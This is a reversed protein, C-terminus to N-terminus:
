VPQFAIQSKAVPVDARVARDGTSSDLDLHAARAGEEEWGAPCIVTRVYVSFSVSALKM